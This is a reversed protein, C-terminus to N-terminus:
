GLLRPELVRRAEDPLPVPGDPGVAVLVGRATAACRGDVFVGTGVTLSTRGIALLCSGVDLQAPYHLESRYDIEVRRLTLGVRLAAAALLGGAFAVRGTEVYAAIAVNNVHGVLDTDSFRVQEGVWHDYIGADTLDPESM